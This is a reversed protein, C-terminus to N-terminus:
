LRPFPALSTASLGWSAPFVVRARALQQPVAVSCPLRKRLWRFHWLHRYVCTFPGHAHHSCGHPQAHSYGNSFTCLPPPMCSSRGLSLVIAPTSQAHKTPINSTCCTGSLETKGDPGGFVVWIRFRWKGRGSCPPKVSMWASRSRRMASLGAGSPHSCTCSTQCGRSAASRSRRSSSRVTRPSSRTWELNMTAVGIPTLPRREIRVLACTSM